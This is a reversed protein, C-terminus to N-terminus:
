NTRADQQYLTIMALVAFFITFGACSLLFAPLSLVLRPNNARMGLCLLSYPFLFAGGKAMICLGSIGGFLAIGVPAAFTRILMSLFLQVACVTISGATGCLLWHFLEPPLPEQLGIAKGCIVYIVGICLQSLLAIGASLLLKAGYICCRPVPVSLLTNWNYGSHELRWQWACFVGLQAPIFFSAAFLTHQCWLDYWGNKLISLNNTYNISGFFAPFLPLIFFALWILNRKCKLQEAYLARLLMM